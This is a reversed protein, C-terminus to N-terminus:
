ILRNKRYHDGRRFIASEGRGRLLIRFVDDAKNVTQFDAELHKPSDRLFSIFDYPLFTEAASSVWLNKPTYLSVFMFAYLCVTIFVHPSLVNVIAGM